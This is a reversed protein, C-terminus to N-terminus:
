CLIGAKRAAHKQLIDFYYIVQIANVPPGVDVKTVNIVRDYGFMRKHNWNYAPIEIDSLVMALKLPEIHCGGYMLRNGVTRDVWGYSGETHLLSKLLNSVEYGVQRIPLDIAYAKERHLITYYM